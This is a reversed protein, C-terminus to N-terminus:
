VVSKRDPPGTREAQQQGADDPVQDIADEALRAGEATVDDVEDRQRVPRDEIHGVHADVDGRHQDQDERHATNPQVASPHSGAPPSCTLTDPEGIRSFPRTLLASCRVRCTGSPTAPSRSSAPSAFINPKERVRAASSIAWPRTLTSPVPTTLDSLISGPVTSSTSMGTSASGSSTTGSYTSPTRIM